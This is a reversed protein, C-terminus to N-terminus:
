FHAEFYPDTVNSGWVCFFDVSPDTPLNEGEVTVNVRIRDSDTDTHPIQIKSPMLRRVKIPLHYTLNVYSSGRTFDVGYNNSLYPYHIGESLVNPPRIM